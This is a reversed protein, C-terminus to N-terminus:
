EHFRLEAPMGIKLRGDPNPVLVKIAYVQTTREEKTQIMKPTFEAKDSIWAIKGELDISGEPEDISVVTSQGIAITSLQPEGVYAMLEMPDLKALVCVVRGPAALEGERLSVSLVTGDMPALLSCRHLQDLLQLRQVRLPEIEALMGRTQTSLTSAAAKRQQEVLSLEAQLDDLQKTPVANAEVLNELRNIETELKVMREDYIALQVAENPLKQRIASITADIQLIRLHLQATDIQALLDGKHVAVGEELSPGILMGPQEASVQIEIAEFNGYADAENENSACGALFLPMLGVFLVLARMRSSIILHFPKINM